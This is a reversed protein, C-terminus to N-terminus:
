IWISKFCKAIENFMKFSSSLNSLWSKISVPFQKIVNLPHSSKAHIYMNKDNPKCYSKHSGNNLNLAVDIYSEIKLNYEIDISLSFKKFLQQSEKSIKDAQHLNINKVVTVWDAQYLGIKNKNFKSSLKHLLFLRVLECVEWRLCAGMTVDSLNTNKKQWPTEQNYPISKRKFALFWLNISIIKIKSIRSGILSNQLIIGINCTCLM